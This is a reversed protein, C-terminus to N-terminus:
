EFRSKTESVPQSQGHSKSQLGSARQSSDPGLCPATEHQMGSALTAVVHPAKTDDPTSVVMAPPFPPPILPVNNSSLDSGVLETSQQLLPAAIPNLKSMPASSVSVPPLPAAQSSVSLFNPPSPQEVTDTRLTSKVFGSRFATALSTAPASAKVFGRMEVPKAGAAKSNGAGAFGLGKRQDSKSKRRSDNWRDLEVADEADVARDKDGDHTGRHQQNPIARQGGKAGNVSDVPATGRRFRADRKALALLELSVTQGSVDMNYVLQAAFQAENRTVLTYANGPKFGELGMRGTRGIRHVHTDINKAVDFNVVNKVDKVDLGRAAVDTAVLVRCEGHKFNALAQAREQQTKDGHLCLAPAAPFAVALNKALEECGAKSGAFILLLGEDVLIRMRAMLWPWKAGHGPLVVAIQRIDENAQGVQGITLKIPNTLVDLALSEIRRRFTASFMLTQRDPRVQGIISRLQPEFGMEFMRDAEDLVVFTVRNMPATKKRIMEILRGPTAVVVEVGKNLAQVQEWKGAGGYIAACSAGYVALFKKAQVYTQHALERTPALVVAIPGEGRELERQDMVHRIMPLTFALTKGSGTKAIGILDRGSLAVPFAQAQIATPAEIGLKMLMQLMKRDFGLHMFSRVPAPVDAGHVKVSLEARINAVQHETLAATENHLTYFTKRFPEYQVTSHDIPTLVEMVKKDLHEGNDGNDLQKATAYVEEDSDELHMQPIKTSRAYKELYRDADDDDFNLVQPKNVVQKLAATRQQMVQADIGQMFADLPDVQDDDMTSPKENGSEETDFYDVAQTKRRLYEHDM